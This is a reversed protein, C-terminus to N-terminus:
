ASEESAAEAEDAAAPGGAEAEALVRRAEELDARGVQVEFSLVPISSPGVLYSPIGNAELIGRISMAEMEADHNSSRFLTVADLEHSTDPAESEPEPQM